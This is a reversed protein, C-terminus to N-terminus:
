TFYRDCVDVPYCRSVISPDVGDRVAAAAIESEDRCHVTRNNHWRYDVPTVRARHLRLLTSLIKKKDNKADFHNSLLRRRETANEGHEGCAATALAALWLAARAMM